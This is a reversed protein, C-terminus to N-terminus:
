RYTSCSPGASQFYIQLETSISSYASFFYQVCLGLVFDFVTFFVHVNSALFKIKCLHELTCGTMM